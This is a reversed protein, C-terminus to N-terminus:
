LPPKMTGIRILRDVQQDDDEAHLAEDGQALGLALAADVVNM